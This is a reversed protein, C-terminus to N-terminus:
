KSNSTYAPFSIAEGHGPAYVDIKGQTNFLALEHGCETLGGVAIMNKLLAPYTLQRAYLGYNGIAAVYIVGEDALDNTPTEHVEYEKEKYHGFQMVIQIVQCKKGIDKLAKIIAKPKFSMEESACYVQIEAEPAYKAVIGTVM